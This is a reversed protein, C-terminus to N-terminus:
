LSGEMPKLAVGSDPSVTEIWARGEVDVAEASDPGGDSLGFREAVEATTQRSVGPTEPAQDLAAAFEAETNATLMM